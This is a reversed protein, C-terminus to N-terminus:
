NKMSTTARKSTPMGICTTRMGNESRPVHTAGGGDDALRDGPERSPPPSALERAVHELGDGRARGGGARAPPRAPARFKTPKRM